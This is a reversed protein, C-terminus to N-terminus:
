CCHGLIMEDLLLPLHVTTRFYRIVRALKLYDDKTPERIRTCLYAVVVQIDLRAQKAALLWRATMSHFFDTQPTGLRPLTKQVTFLKSRTHDPATGGMDPLTSDIIDEIYDHMTFLVQGNKDPDSANYRGSFDITLGLYKHISGMMKALEKKSTRFVNNLEKVLDDLVFQELYSYKLDDM